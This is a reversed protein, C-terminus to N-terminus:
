AVKFLYDEVSVKEGTKGIVVTLEAERNEKRFCWMYCEGPIEGFVQVNDANFVRDYLIQGPM